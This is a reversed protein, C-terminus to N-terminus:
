LDTSDEDDMKIEDEMPEDEDEKIKEVQPAEEEDDSEAIPRAAMRRKKLAFNARTTLVPRTAPPRKLSGPPPGPEGIDDEVRPTIIYTLVGIQTHYVFAVPYDGRVHISVKSCVNKAKIVRQMFSIPYMASVPWLGTDKRKFSVTHDDGDGGDNKKKADEEEKQRDTVTFVVKSLLGNATLSFTYGDCYLHVLPPNPDASSLDRIMDHFLSSSMTVAGNWQLSEIEDTDIAPVDPSPLVIEARSYKESNQVSFILRDPVLPDIAFTIMDRPSSCRLHAAISRTKVNVEIPRPSDFEYSGGLTRICKAEIVYRFVVVKASDQGVFEAGDERFFLWCESIYDRISEFM